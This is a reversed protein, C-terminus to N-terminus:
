ATALITATTGPNRQGNDGSANRERGPNKERGPRRRSGRGRRIPSSRCLGTGAKGGVTSGARSSLARRNRILGKSPPEGHHREPRRDPVGIRDARPRLDPRAAPAVRRHPGQTTLPRHAVRPTRRARGLIGRRRRGPPYGRGRDGGRHFRRGQREDFARLRTRLAEIDAAADRRPAAALNGPPLLGSAAALAHSRGPDDAGYRALQDRLQWKELQDLVLPEDDAADDGRASMVLGLRNRLFHKTPSEAFRILEELELESAPEGDDPTQGAFRNRAESQEGLARAAGAM